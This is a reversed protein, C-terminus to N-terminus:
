IPTCHGTRVSGAFDRLIDDDVSDIAVTKAEEDVLKLRAEMMDSFSRDREAVFRLAPMDGKLAKEVLRKAAAEKKSITKRNGGEVVTIKTDLERAVSADFGLAGKPRGRPNGSQGPKFQRHQPPRGYGVEYEDKEDHRGM